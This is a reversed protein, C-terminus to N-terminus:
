LGFVDGAAIAEPQGGQAVVLLRGAEDIGDFMGSFQRDPLRVEITGGIGAARALWDTRISAFGAGASWQRSRAKMAHALALLVAAPDVAIGNAALDTSPYRTEAPHNACNIGIGIAVAFVPQSEAEILLGAIKRKALLLDNPWKLALDGALSPACAAVADHAALGAVFSLQPAVAPACAETLLLSAYLNGPPSAWSRGQRGRGGTQEAASIWLPGREGARALALAEASTSGLAGYSRHRIGALDTAERNMEDGPL